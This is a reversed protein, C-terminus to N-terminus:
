PHRIKFPGTKAGPAFMQRGYKNIWYVVKCTTKIPNWCLFCLAADPTGDHFKVLQGAPEPCRDCHAYEPGSYM